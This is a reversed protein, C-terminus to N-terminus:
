LRKLTWRGPIVAGERVYPSADGDKEKNCLWKSVESTKEQGLQKSRALILCRTLWDESVNLSVERYAARIVRWSAIRAKERLRILLAELADRFLSHPNATRQSLTIITELAPSGKRLYGELRTLNGQRIHTSM